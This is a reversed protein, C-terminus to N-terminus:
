IHILSLKLDKLLRAVYIDKIDVETVTGEGQEFDGAKAINGLLTIEDGFFPKAQLTMKFGNYESPNHSGTIMIGGAANRDKVAFYLMPRPVEGMDEVNVGTSALGKILNAAYSPSTERGDYAVCVTAQEGNADRKVITGFACGIALADADSLNEGVLGRIDYERLVSPDFTHAPHTM